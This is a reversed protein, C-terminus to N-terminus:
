ETMKDRILQALLQAACGRRQSPCHCRRLNHVRQVQRAKCGQARLKNCGVSCSQITDIVPTNGKLGSLRTCLLTRLSAATDCAPRPTSISYQERATM